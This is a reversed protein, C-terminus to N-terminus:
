RYTGWLGHDNDLWGELSVSAVSMDASLVNGGRPHRARFGNYTYLGPQTTGGNYLSSNTDSRGDDDTDLNFPWGDPTYIWELTSDAIILVSPKIEAMIAPGPGGRDKTVASAVNHNMGYLGKPSRSDWRLDEPDTDYWQVPFVGWGLLIMGFLVGVALSLLVVTLPSLRRIYNLLKEM